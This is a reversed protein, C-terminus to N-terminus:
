GWRRHALDIQERLDHRAAELNEKVRFYAAESFGLDEAHLIQELSDVVRLVKAELLEITTGYIREPVFYLMILSFMFGYSFATTFGREARGAVALMLVVGLVIGLTMVQARAIPRAPALAALATGLRAYSKVRRLWANFEHCHKLSVRSQEHRALETAYDRCEQALDYFEKRTLPLAGVQPQARSSGKFLNSLFSLLQVFRNFAAVIDSVFNAYSFM